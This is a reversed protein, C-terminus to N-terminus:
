KVSLDKEFVRFKKYLKAGTIAITSHAIKNKEDIWGVESGLYGRKKMEVLTNYNLYSGISKNRFEKKIGILLMKGININKKYYIFKLLQFPNLRGKMKKFVQNYDPTSWLYAVPSDNLEAILFLDSDVFWRMQKVGFRAKVEKAAVPVYGWHDKFTELFLDSWWNVENQTRFRNFSRIKVGSEECKKAKEKLKRPLPKTLDIYYLWQDRSKKLNFRKALDLYYRPSYSSLLSPSSSFGELLFGCGNDIRGNIPGQMIDMDKSILWDQVTKFLANSCKSDNICEFFGFFGIKKGLSECYKYDIIAAIRGVIKGNKRAIFLRTISHSWFPNKNKFFDKIEFWFPSVWFVDDKYIKFAVNYFKKFNIYDTISDVCIDKYFIKKEKTDNEFIYGKNTDKEFGNNVKSKTSYDQYNSKSSVTFVM